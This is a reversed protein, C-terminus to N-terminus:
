LKETEESILIEECDTCQITTIGPKGWVAIECSPCSYKVKNAKKAKIKQLATQNDQYLSVTHNKLFETVCKEYMGNEEIVHTVKQGTEKHKGIIDGTDTPLLGINKMFAAWQKNHYGSRSPKGYHFQKLHVMEHALTSLVTKLPRNLHLPNLAIEDIIETKDSVAIFRKDSFYGYSKKQRQVTILCAPLESNFLKENFYQYVQDLSTYTQIPNKM